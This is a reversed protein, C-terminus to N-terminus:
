DLDYRRVEVKTKSNIYRAIYNAKIKDKFKFWEPLNQLGIFFLLFVVINETTILLFWKHETLEEMSGSTFLNTTVNTVLGVFTLISL